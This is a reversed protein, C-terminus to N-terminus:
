RLAADAERVGVQVSRRSVDLPGPSSVRLPLPWAQCVRASPFSCSTPLSRQYLFGPAVGQFLHPRRPSAETQWAGPQTGPM